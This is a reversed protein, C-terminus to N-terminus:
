DFVVKIGCLFHNYISSYYQAPPSPTFQLQCSVSILSPFKTDGVQVVKLASFTEFILGRSM